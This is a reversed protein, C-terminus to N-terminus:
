RRMAPTYPRNQGVQRCEFARTPQQNLPFYRHTQRMTSQAARRHLWAAPDPKGDALLSTAIVCTRTRESLATNRATTHTATSPIVDISLDAIVDPTRAIMASAASSALSPQIM